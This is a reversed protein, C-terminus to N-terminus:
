VQSRRKHFSAKYHLHLPFRLSKSLSIVDRQKEPWLQGNRMKVVFWRENSSSCVAHSDQKGGKSFHWHCAFGVFYTLVAPLSAQRHSVSFASSYAPLLASVLRQVAYHSSPCWPPSRPPVGAGGGRVRGSCLLSRLLPVDSPDSLRSSVPHSESNRSLCEANTVTIATVKPHPTSLSSVKQFWGLTTKLVRQELSLWDVGRAPTTSAVRNGPRTTYSVTWEACISPRQVLIGCGSRQGRKTM